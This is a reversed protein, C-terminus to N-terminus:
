AITMGAYGVVMERDGSIDGSTAYKVLEGQTAGLSKTATLMAVTPGYGCMSIGERRVTQHLGTADLALICEIAKHDKVRTISDSEYHNMDSSAIVMVDERDKLVGAIAQGFAQLVALQGVGLCVPVFTFDGLAVQLFPLQVELSHEARHAAEDEELYPFASKLEAALASDIRAEGLPTMWAGSSMIALPEGAGTHNPCLIVLRRPLALRAYVAGAVHGSYMYGAHPVVCGLARQKEGGTELYLLVDHRLLEAEGPYFKGAVAPQRVTEDSNM